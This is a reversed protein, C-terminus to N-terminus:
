RLSDFLSIASIARSSVEIVTQYITQQHQVMSIAEAMNADEKKSLLSKIEIQAKEMRDVTLGVQRSRAGNTTRATTIDNLGTALNSLANQIDATNNNLLDDRAQILSSLFTSFVTSGTFNTTMKQGPSIDQQIIGTDGQYTVVTESSDLSFSPMNVLFGSFVYKGDHQSNAGEVAQRVLESMETGLASREKASLTDSSAQLLLNKARTAIDTEQKFANEVTGMWDQTNQGTDIFTQNSQITSRLQLSFAARSPDDSMVQFQKGTSATQNFTNLRELNDNMNRIAQDIMLSSTIRM